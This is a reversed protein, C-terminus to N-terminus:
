LPASAGKLAALVERADALYGQRQDLARREGRHPGAAGDVTQEEEVEERAM